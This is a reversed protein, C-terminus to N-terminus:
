QQVHYYNIAHIKSTDHLAHNPTLRLERSIMCMHCNRSYEICPRTEVILIRRLYCSVIDHAKDEYASIIVRGLRYLREKILM